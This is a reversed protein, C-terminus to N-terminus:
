FRDFSNTISM